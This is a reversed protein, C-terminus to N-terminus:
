AGSGDLKQMLTVIRGAKEEETRADYIWNILAQQEFDPLALFRDLLDPAEMGFCEKLEDPLERLPEEVRLRIYVTDGAEKKIKKRIAAKVGLFLTGDGKPMLKYRKLPYDDIFGSVRVWGFPSHQDPKMEPISAYTWGGKGPFKQLRYSGEIQKPM